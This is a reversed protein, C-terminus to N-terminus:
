PRVRNAEAPEVQDCETELGCTDIYIDEAEQQARQLALIAETVGRFLRSYMADYDIM